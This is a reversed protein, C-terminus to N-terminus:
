GASVSPPTAGANRAAVPADWSAPVDNTMDLRQKELFESIRRIRVMMTASPAVVGNIYTSLRPASTGVMSAFQRQSCGSVAVLRRIELAVLQRERREAQARYYGVAAEWARGHTPRDGQLLLDRLTTSYPMWPGAAAIIAIQARWAEIGGRDVCRVADEVTELRQGHASPNIDAMVLWFAARACCEGVAVAREDGVRDRVRDRIWETRALVRVLVTALPKGRGTELLGDANAQAGAVTRHGYSAVLEALSVFDDASRRDVVDIMNALVAADVSGGEAILASAVASFRVCVPPGGGRDLRGRSLLEGIVAQALHNDPHGDGSIAARVEEGRGRPDEPGGVVDV